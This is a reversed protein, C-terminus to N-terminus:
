VTLLLAGIGGAVIAMLVLWLAHRRKVGATIPLFLARFAPALLVFLLALTTWWIGAAVAVVGAGVRIQEQILLREFPIGFVDYLGGEGLLYISPLAIPPFLAAFVVVAFCVAIPPLVLWRRAGLVDGALEVHARALFFAPILLLPGGIPTLLFALVTIGFTLYALRWDEPGVQFRTAIRSWVPREEEPLWREPPGLRQLVDSLTAAGVPMAEGALALEVHEVVNQEVEAPEVSRSGRLVSRMRRLYDEFRMRAEPTLEIM